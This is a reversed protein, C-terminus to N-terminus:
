DVIGVNPSAQMKYPIVVTRPDVAKQDRATALMRGAIDAVERYAISPCAHPFRSKGAEGVAYGKFVIEIDKPISLEHEAVIAAIDDAWRPLKVVIGTPRDAMSLIEEVQARLVAPESGPARWLLATPPYSASELAESVGDRFFNDGPCTESDSFLAIKRHGKEILHSVLLEGAAREDADISPYPQDGYLSGLV